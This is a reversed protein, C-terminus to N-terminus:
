CSMCSCRHPQAYVQVNSGVCEGTWDLGTGTWDWDLGQKILSILNGVLGSSMFPDIHCATLNIKSVELEITWKGPQLYM